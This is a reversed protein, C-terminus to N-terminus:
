LAKRQTSRGHKGGRIRIKRGILVSKVSGSLAKPTEVHRKGAAKELALALDDYAKQLQNVDSVTFTLAKALRKLSVTTDTARRIAEEINTLDLTVTYENDAKSMKGGTYM